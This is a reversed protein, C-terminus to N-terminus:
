IIPLVMHNVYILKIGDPSAGKPTAFLYGDVCIQFDYNPLITQIYSTPIGCATAVGPLETIKILEKENIM